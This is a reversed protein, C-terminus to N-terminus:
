ETPAPIAGSEIAKETKKDRGFKVEVIGGETNGNLHNIALSSVLSPKKFQVIVGGDAFFEHAAAMEKNPGGNVAVHIKKQPKTYSYGNEEGTVKIFIVTALVPEVFTVELGNREAGFCWYTDKSGDFARWADGKNGQEALDKLSKCTEFRTRPLDLLRYREIINAYNKGNFETYTFPPKATKWVPDDSACVLAAGLGAAPAAPAAEKVAVKSAPESAPEKWAVVDRPNIIISTAVGGINMKLTKAMPDYLGSLNRGDKFQLMLVKPADTSKPESVPTGEEEAMIFAAVALIATIRLLM